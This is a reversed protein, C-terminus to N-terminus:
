SHAILYCITEHFEYLVLRAAVSALAWIIGLVFYPFTCGCMHSSPLYGLSKLIGLVTSDILTNSLLNRVRESTCYMGGYKVWGGLGSM